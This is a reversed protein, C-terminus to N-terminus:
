GSAEQGLKKAPAYTEGWASDCWNVMFEILQERHGEADRQGEHSWIETLQYHITLM